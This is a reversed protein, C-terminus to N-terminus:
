PQRLSADSYFTKSFTYENKGSPNIHTLTFTIRITGPTSARSLNQFSLASATVRANTLPIAGAAGEKIRIAGSGIDFLTPNNGVTYTDLSLLAASSGAGPSNITTANRITQTIVQMTQLGQQEVEAITQNKIRSELISQLFFTTVLLMMSSTAVYLLLEILTFGKQKYVTNMNDIM